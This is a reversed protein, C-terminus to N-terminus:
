IQNIRNILLLSNYEIFPNQNNSTYFHFHMMSLLGAFPKYIINM